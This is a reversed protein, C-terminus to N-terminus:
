PHVVLPELRADALSRLQGDCEQDYKWGAVVGYLSAGGLIAAFAVMSVDGDHVAELGMRAALPPIAAHLSMVNAFKSESHRRKEEHRITASQSWDLEPEYIYHSTPSPAPTISERTEYDRIINNVARRTRFRSVPVGTIALGLVGSFAAEVFPVDPLQDGAPSAIVLATGAALGICDRRFKHGRTIRAEVNQRAIQRNSHM